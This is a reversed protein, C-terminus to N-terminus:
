RTTATLRGKKKAQQKKKTKTKSSEAVGGGGRGQKELKTGDEVRSQEAGKFCIKQERSVMGQEFKRSIFGFVFIIKLKARGKVQSGERSDTRLGRMKSVCACLYLGGRRRGEMGDARLRVTQPVM